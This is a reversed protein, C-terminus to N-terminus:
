GSSASGRVARDARGRRAKRRYKIIGRRLEARVARRLSAPALVEAASGFSQVWRQLEFHGSVKMKLIVSGDQLWHLSQQRAWQREAIYRAVTAAFRIEVPDIPDVMVAFADRRWAQADFDEAPPFRQGTTEVQRIRDVALTRIGGAGHMRGILYLAGQEVFFHLPDIAFIKRAVSSLSRYEIRVCQRRRAAHLLKQLLSACASYDKQFSRAPLFLKGSSERNNQPPALAQLRALLADAANELTSIRGQGLLSRMAQLAIQDDETLQFDPTTLNPLRRLYGPELRYRRVRRDHTESEEYLPVNLTQALDLLRYATRRSKGTASVIDALTAGGPRALINITQLLDKLRAYSM